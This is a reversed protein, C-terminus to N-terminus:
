FTRMLPIAVAILALVVCLPWVWAPWGGPLRLRLAQLSAGLAVAVSLGSLAVLTYAGRPGERGAFGAIDYAFALWALGLLATFGLSVLFAPRGVPLVALALYVALPLGLILLWVSM